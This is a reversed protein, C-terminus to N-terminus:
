CTVSPHKQLEESVMMCLYNPLLKKVYGEPACVHRQEMHPDSTLCLWSHHRQLLYLKLRKRLGEVLSSM